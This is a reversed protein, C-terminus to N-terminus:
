DQLTVILPIKVYLGNKEYIISPNNESETLECALDTELFGTFDCEEGAPMLRYVKDDTLLYIEATNELEVCSGTLAYLGEQYFSLYGQVQKGEVEENIQNKALFDEEFSVPIIPVYKLLNGLNREVLEIIVVDTNDIVSYINYPIERKANLEEFDNAFFSYLANGFSDRYLIANKDVFAAQNATSILLDEESKFRSTYEYTEAVDFYVQEDKYDSGPFLMNQLDGSFNNRVDYGKDTYTTYVYGGYVAELEKMVTEYAVAAGYNNWHSDKKHYLRIGTLKAAQMVNNLDVHCVQSDRLEAMLREYDTSTDAQIYYYPMYEGYVSMKNPASMFIFDKGQGSVYEQTLQLIAALKEIEVASLRDSGVYDKLASEYFLWGEEGIIVSPQGSTKFLASKFANGAYVLDNRFGFNQAVYADAESFFGTNIGGDTILSPKVARTENGILPQKSDFFLLPILSIVIFLVVYAIKVFRDKKM